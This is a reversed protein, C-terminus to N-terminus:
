KQTKQTLEDLSHFSYGMEKWKVILEDLIDANTSSTNHLLVIAGPHIRTLLKDFAEQHTPQQDQIWDVYAVSWFITHYGLSHAMELNATNYIGQPPRYYSSMTKGTINRFATETLNLEAKFDDITSIKSMDPHHYTHNGIIHKESLMRKVLAPNQEIYTGVVFFAAPVSHKKLVDLIKSTNGNEYGADFTLYIKKENTDEAYFADYTELEEISANAQPRQGEEPFSLGWGESTAAYLKISNNYSHYYGCLAGIIYSCIFFFILFLHPFRHLVSQKFTIYFKSLSPIM